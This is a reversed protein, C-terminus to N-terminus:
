PCPRAAKRIFAPICTWAMQGYRFATLHFRIRQIPNWVMGYTRFGSLPTIKMILWYANMYKTYSLTPQKSVEVREDWLSVGNADFRQLYPVVTDIGNEPRNYYLYWSGDSLIETEFTYYAQDILQLNEKSNDSWQAFLGTWSFTLTWFLAIRKM